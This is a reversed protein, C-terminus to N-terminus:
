KVDKGKVEELERKLDDIQTQQKTVTQVLTAAWFGTFMLMAGLICLFLVDAPM